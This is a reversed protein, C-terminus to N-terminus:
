ASDIRVANDHGDNKISILKIQITRKDDVDRELDALRSLKELAQVSAIDSRSDDSIRMLRFLGGGEEYDIPELEGMMYARAWQKPTRKKPLEVIDGM